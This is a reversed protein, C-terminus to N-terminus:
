DVAVDNLSATQVFNPNLGSGDVNTRALSAAQGIYIHDADVALGSVFLAQSLTIFGTNVGTGDLNARGVSRGSDSAFYVYAHASAASTLALGAVALLAGLLKLARRPRRTRPPLSGEM